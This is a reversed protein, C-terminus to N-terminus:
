SNPNDTPSTATYEAFLLRTWRWVMNIDLGATLYFSYDKLTRLRIGLDLPTTHDLGDINNTFLYLALGGAAMSTSLTLSIIAELPTLPKHPRYIQEVARNQASVLLAHLGHNDTDETSVQGQPVILQSHPGQEVKDVMRQHQLIYAYHLVLRLLSIYM